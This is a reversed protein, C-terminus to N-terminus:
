KLNPEFGVLYVTTVSGNDGSGCQFNLNNVQKTTLTNNSLASTQCNITESVAEKATLDPFVTAVLLGVVGYYEAPPFKQRSTASVGIAKSGSCAIALSETDPHAIYIAQTTRRVVSSGFISAAIEGAKADCEDARASAPLAIAALTLLVAAKM